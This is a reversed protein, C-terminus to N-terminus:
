NCRLVEGYLRGLSEPLRRVSYGTEVRARARLGTERRLVPDGAFREVGCALDAADCLVGNTGDILDTAGGVPTSVVPLGSAMAELVVNPTGEHESTLVFVDAERYVPALDGAGNRFELRDPGLGLEAARRQLAAREPGDGVLLGKVGRLRALLALFRDFRKSPVLRGVALLTVPGGREDARPRFRDTDVVNPLLHMRARPVGRRAANEMAARSNVALARPWTLSPRGFLRHSATGHVADGRIAGVDRCGAWRGACAAYLNVYLHAAQVVDAPEDRLARTIALLRRARGKTGGVFRVPIAVDRLRREWYEGRTLSLVRVATGQARLATAIYYLQQEAGGRGLTGALFTVRDPLM